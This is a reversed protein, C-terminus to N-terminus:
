FLQISIIIKNKNMKLILEAVSNGSQLAAEVTSQASGEFLAEGAFFLVEDVPKLLIKKANPSQPSNYSYGGKIYPYKKWQVICHQILQEKLFEIGCNFIKSLSGLSHELLVEETLGEASANPGGLWGTLLAQENPLQTWWTPIKEDSIIFGINKAYNSWFSSKFALLIKVVDGFGIDNIANMHAPIAPVFDIDGAQLVGLSVTVIVKSGYFINGDTCIVKVGEKNHEIRKAVTSFYFVTNHKICCDLLYGTLKSYGGDVRYQEGGENLWEQKLPLIAAKNIDALDYGEAYHQVAERLTAYKDEDFNEDLFQQVTINAKQNKLKRMFLGWHEDLEKNAGHWEGKTVTIMNGEVPSFSINGENLLHKTLPLDGHIFEAGKEVPMDFGNTTFTCIRGGEKEAAEVVAVTHGSESLKKAIILGAAGAGIVIIDYKM